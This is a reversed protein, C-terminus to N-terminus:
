GDRLREVEARAFWRQTGDMDALPTLKGQTAWRHLTAKSVGLYAMAEGFTLREHRWQILAVKEFRYAHSGDIEPGTVPQLRGSRAWHQVTLRTVSLIAAAEDSTVYRELFAAVDEEAYQHRVDKQDTDDTVPILLGAGYLRRLTTPKCSLRECTANVSLCAGQGQRVNALYRLLDGGDCWLVNLSLRDLLRAAPLAGSTIDLLLQPLRRRVSTAARQIAPFYRARRGTDLPVPRIPVDGLLRELSEEVHAPAFRWIAREDVLPGSEAALVGAAVLAVVLEESTGIREAAQTLTLHAERAQRLLRMSEAEILQWPRQSPRPPAATARLQGKAIFAQLQEESVGLERAAERQSLLPPAHEPLMEARMGRYYRLWPVVAPNHHMEERMFAAWEQHLWRWQRGGFQEALAALFPRGELSDTRNAAIREMTTYWPEPWHLLMRWMGVFAGHVQAVTAPRLGKRPRTWVMGPPLLEKHFLPSTPDYIALLQFGHWLFALFTAPRMYLLPHADPLALASPPFPGPWGVFASWVAQTLGISADHGAVSVTPLDSLPTGCGRCCSKVRDLRLPAQCVGCTDVLLVEHIHCTTVHRMLWPLLVVGQEAWCRPCLKASRLSHVYFGKQDSYWFRQTFPPEGHKEAETDSVAFAPLLRHITLNYLQETSLGTLETFAAYHHAMRLADPQTDSMSPVLSEYWRPEEYYNARRLRELLSSLRELPYPELRNILTPM